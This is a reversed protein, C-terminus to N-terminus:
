IIIHIEPKKKQAPGTVDRYSFLNVHHVVACGVFNM